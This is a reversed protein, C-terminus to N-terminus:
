YGAHDGLGKRATIAAELARQADREADVLARNDIELQISGLEGRLTTEIAELKVIRVDTDDAVHRKVAIAGALEASLVLAAVITGIVGARSALM